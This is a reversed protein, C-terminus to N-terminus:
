LKRAEAWLRGKGVTQYWTDFETRYQQWPESLQQRPDESLSYAMGEIFWKPSLWQTIAGLQEAQRYHIMEHRVYYPTWGRPSIVIGVRGVSQASAKKFGFAQFCAETTCFIVRPKDKFPGITTAVFRLSSEYLKSAEQYRSVDDICIEASPCSIGDVWQPAFVRVPKYIAWAAAPICLFCVLLLRKLM